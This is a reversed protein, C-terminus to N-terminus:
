LFSIEDGEIGLMEHGVVDEEECLAKRKEVIHWTRPNNPMFMYVAQAVVIEEPSNERKEVM